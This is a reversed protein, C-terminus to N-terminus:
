QWLYREDFALRSRRLLSRMEDQFSRGQHHAHQNRIYRVVAQATGQSVSFAGYGAQWRFHALTPDARKLWLASGTKLEEVLHALSVTRGLAFLLHVHDEVGGIEIPQSSNTRLIGGMYGHMRGRLPELLLPQRRHTSFVLHVLIRALSQPM